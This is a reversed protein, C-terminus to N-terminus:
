EEHIGYHAVYNKYTERVSDNDLGVDAL